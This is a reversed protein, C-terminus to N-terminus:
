LFLSQINRTHCLRRRSTQFIHPRPYLEKLREAICDSTSLIEEERLCFVKHIKFDVPLFISTISGRLSFSSKTINPTRAHSTAFSQFEQYLIGRRLRDIRVIKVSWDRVRHDDNGHRCWGASVQKQLVKPMSAASDASPSM